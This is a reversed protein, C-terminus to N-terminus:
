SHTEVRGAKAQWDGLRYAGEQPVGGGYRFGQPCICTYSNVADVCQAGHRCRHAVCDDDDVECLKGSYGPLCECRSCLLALSNQPGPRSRPPRRDQRHVWMGLDRVERHTGSAQGMTLKVLWRHVRPGQLSIDAQTM